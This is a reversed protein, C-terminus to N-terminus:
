PRDSIEDGAEEDEGDEDAEEELGPLVFREFEKEFALDRLDDIRDVFLTGDLHDCEHQIVVASFGTLELDLEQGERDLAQLRVRNPRSVKGRLGPISLCGEWMSSTEETLPTIRPNIIVTLPTDPSSGLGAGEHLVVVRWSRHVQPAALGVGEQEHMTALMSDLFDQFEPENLRAPDVVEAVTRLVPHGMRAVKLLQKM